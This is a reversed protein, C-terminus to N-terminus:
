TLPQAEQAIQEPLVQLGRIEANLQVNNGTVQLSLVDTLWSSMTALAFSRAALALRACVNCAALRM